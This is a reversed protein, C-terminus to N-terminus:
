PATGQERGSGDAMRRNRVISGRAPAGNPSAMAAFTRQRGERQVSSCCSWSLVVWAQMGCGHPTDQQPHALAAPPRALVELVGGEDALSMVAMHSQEILKPTMGVLRKAQSM